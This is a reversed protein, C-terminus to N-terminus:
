ELMGELKDLGIELKVILNGNVRCESFYAGNDWKISYPYTAYKRERRRIVTGKTGRHVDPGIGAEATCIVRDGVKLKITM